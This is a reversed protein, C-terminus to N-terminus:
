RIGYPREKACYRIAELLNGGNEKQVEKLYDNDRSESSAVWYLFPNPVLRIVGSSSTTIVLAESYRGKVTKISKLAVAMEDSLSLEAQIQNIVGHEQKLFIKNATNALIALGSKQQLLDAIEQTIAVVSCRYKRFTKFANAIFDATNSMKLLQWAEDILLFKREKLMKEDSVFNTIFFMLNLLVVLQLDPHSSLNALEFVTFRSDIKFQNKGDFFKGFQGKSTFHSLKLALRPGINMGASAKANFANDNLIVILDSLVIESGAGRQYTELVAALLFGKDERSLRDREDNGSAMISLMDVLFALNDATPQGIFPNITMPKALDFTIYQGGLVDCTKRYSNGKDLVFFHSGLRYNQYIFDNTLFSKGAGSAGIIMGHPNTESDFFDVFVPEGRRNLYVQAPTKTGKFSGYLPVMDALNDSLLRKTRRIFNEYSYDFNLPLCTLFLSPAIIEEKLGDANLRNLVNILTTTAHEVEEVTKAKLVFHIRAYVITQGGKFTESIVSSLEEKKEVAEESIEGSSSAQQMFALKKHWKLRDLAEGQNPVVFNIVFMLDKLIDLLCFRDGTGAEASFMGTFTNHPLEKISVVRTHYTDLVFGEGLAQPANYLIQERIFEDNVRTAPINKSRKPNLLRYLTQILEKEDFSVFPLNISQLSSEIYDCPKQITKKHTDWEKVLRERLANGNVFLGNIKDKTHAKSWSPFYRITLLIRIRRPYFNDRSKEFFGEKSNQIHLVKDDIIADVIVNDNGNGAKKYNSLITEVESDCLLILQCHLQSPIRSILAAITNSLDEMQEESSLETESPRLEWIRGISGDVQVFFGDVYDAWPLYDVLSYKEDFIKELNGNKLLM